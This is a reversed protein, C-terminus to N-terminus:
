IVNGEDDYTFPVKYACILGPIAVVLAILFFLEYGVRDSISGSVMGPLMVKKPTVRPAAVAPM